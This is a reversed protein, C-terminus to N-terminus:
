RIMYFYLYKSKVEVTTATARIFPGTLHCRKIVLKTLRRDLNFLHRDQGLSTAVSLFSDNLHLQFLKLEKSFLNPNLQTMTSNLIALNHINKKFSPQNNLGEWGQLGGVELLILNTPNNFSFANPDLKLMQINSLIVLEIQQPINFIIVNM